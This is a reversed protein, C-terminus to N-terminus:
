RCQSCNSDRDHALTLRRRAPLKVLPGVFLDIIGVIWITCGGRNLVPNHRKRQSGDSPAGEEVDFIWLFGFPSRSCHTIGYEMETVVPLRRMSSVSRIRKRALLRTTRM